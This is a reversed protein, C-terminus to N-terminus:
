ETVFKVNALKNKLEQSPAFSIGIRKVLKAGAEEADDTSAIKTKLGFIGLRGMNVNHGNCVFYSIAERIALACARLSSEPVSASQSAYRVVSDADITSYRVARAVERNEDIVAVRQTTSKVKIQAM